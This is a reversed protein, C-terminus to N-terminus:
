RSYDQTHEAQAASPRSTAPTSARRRSSADCGGGASRRGAASPRRVRRLWRGRAHEPQRAGRGRRDRRGGRSVGPLRGDRPRVHTSHGPGRAHGRGDPIWSVGGGVLAVVAEREFRLTPGVLTCEIAAADEPNGVLLNALRLSVPDAAGSLPVGAARHGPRGLDQITTFLGPQLVTIAAAGDTVTPLPAAVAEAAVPLDAAVFRVRDGVEFLAPRPRAVDFLRADTRGVLNWGGPSAFPYAGTQGGGIGVSGAPVLRRPTTRRPAALASPLGALYGFGPLFGIAEILYEPETHAAVLRERSIGKLACVGELDPGDYAVPIEHELSEGRAGPEAAAGAAAAVAEGFAAPDTVLLPDYAVTVRGPAAVVDTVGPVAAARVADALRRVRGLTEAASSGGVRIAVAVDGVPERSASSM